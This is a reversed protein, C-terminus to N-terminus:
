TIFIKDLYNAQVLPQSAIWGQAKAGTSYALWNSYDLSGNFIFILNFLKCTQLRKYGEWTGTSRRSTTRVHTIRCSSITTRDSPTSTVGHARPLAWSGPFRVFRVRWMDLRPHLSSALTSGWIKPSGALPQARMPETIYYKNACLWIFTGQGSLAHWHSALWLYQLCLYVYIFLFIGADVM